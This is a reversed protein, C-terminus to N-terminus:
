TEGALCHGPRRGSHGRAGKELTGTALACLPSEAPGLSHYISQLSLRSPSQPRGKSERYLVPEHLLNVTLGDLVTVHLRHFTLQLVDSTFELRGRDAHILM